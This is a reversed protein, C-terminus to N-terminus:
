GKARELAEVMAGSLARVREPDAESLVPSGVVSRMVGMGLLLAGVLEARLDADEGDFRGALDALYRGCVEERLRERVEPRGASRLMVLLPHEGSAARDDLVVERVLADALAAPGADDGASIGEPVDAQVAEAFLDKKSGFYRFILTADVGADAAIDRVSAGDFGHEAFRRRAADLLATRTAARDRRKPANM